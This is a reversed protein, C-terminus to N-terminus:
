IERLRLVRGGSGVSKEKSKSMMEPRLKMDSDRLLRFPKGPPAVTFFRGALAPSMLSTPEIGPHSLDGPPPCSLGNWYEQKFFGMSLPAQHAVTWLTAFLQVHSLCSLMCLSGELSFQILRSYLEM